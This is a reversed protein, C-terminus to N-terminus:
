VGAIYSITHKLCVKCTHQKEQMIPCSSGSLFLAIYEPHGTIRHPRAVSVKFDKFCHGYCVQMFLTAHTTVVKNKCTKRNIQM